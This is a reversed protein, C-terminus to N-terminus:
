TNRPPPPPRPTPARSTEIAERYIAELQLLNAEPTYKAEYTTRAGSGLESLLGPSSFMERATRALSSADGPEFHRGNMGDVVIEGLSGIRAALVPLGAAFAEVVVMPFGEYWISPVILCQSARMIERVKEQSLHGLFTANAPAEAELKAREPGNGVISLSIGPLGHWAKLLVSAGKEPSLRGVFLAGTRAGPLLAGATAFNPKVALRDAPLGGAIFKARAFDSLTIFRHVDAHWTRHKEARWQMRAVALSGLTSGRYCRHVVGWAKSGNLCKECVLGDRLFMANACLLRYNHLTQVVAAGRSRAAKYVAPTLLPFFNHVHVVDPQTRAFLDTAWALRAPDHPARVFAGVKDATSAIADNSVITVHVTHGASELLKAEATVVTDEGGALRYANHLLTINMPRRVSRSNWM